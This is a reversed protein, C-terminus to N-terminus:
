KGVEPLGLRELKELYDDSIKARTFVTGKYTKWIRWLQREDPHGSLMHSLQGADDYEQLRTAIVIRIVEKADRRHAADVERKRTDWPTGEFVTHGESTRELSFKSADIIPLGGERLLGVM